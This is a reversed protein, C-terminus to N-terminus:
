RTLTIILQPNTTINATLRSTTLQAHKPLGRSSVGQMSCKFICMDKKKLSFHLAAMRPPQPYTAGKLARAYKLPAM